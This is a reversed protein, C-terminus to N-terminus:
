PTSFSSIIIAREDDARLLRMDIDIKEPFGYKANYQVDIHEANREVASFLISFVDEITELENFIEPSVSKNNDIYKANIIEGDLVRIEISRTYEYPCFCQRQLVYDYSTIHQEEWLTMMDQLSEVDEAFLSSILVNSILFLNFLIKM